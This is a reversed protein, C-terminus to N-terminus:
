LMEIDYDIIEVADFSDIFNIIKNIVEDAYVRDKSVIAIGITAIQWLDNDSVEAISINFRNKLREILSKLIMRKEKLSSPSYLRLKLKCSGIIM